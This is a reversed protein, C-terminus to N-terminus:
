FEFGQDKLRRCLEAEELTRGGERYARRVMAELMPTPIEALSSYNPLAKSELRGLRKALRNM